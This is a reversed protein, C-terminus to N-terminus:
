LAKIAGIARGIVKFREADTAIDVTVDNYVKNSSVLRVIRGELQIRKVLLTDDLRVVHLGPRLKDQARDVILADGARLDPEQSDGSVKVMMLQAHEGVRQSVWEEPLPWSGIPQEDLATRGYGAAVEIDYVDVMRLDSRERGHLIFDATSGVAEALRALRAEGPDSGKLIRQLTARPIGTQQVLEDQTGAERALMRLRAAAADGWGHTM